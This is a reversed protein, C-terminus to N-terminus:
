LWRKWKEKKLAEGFGFGSGAPPAWVPGKHHFDYLKARLYPPATFAGTEFFCTHNQYFRGAWFAAGAQGLPHDLSHTFVWRKYFSFRPTKTLLDYRDRAPKIVRVRAGPVLLGDRALQNQESLLRRDLKPDEIFDLSQSLFEFQGRWPAWAAGNLDLRWKIGGEKLVQFLAKLRRIQEDFQGPKLKVKVIKFGQELIREPRNFSLLDEILFHSPPIKLGFFLNQGRARAKADLFANHKAILFRQGARGRQVRDLELPLSKEGFVAQPMFDSYGLLGGEFEFAMLAGQSHPKGLGTKLEYASIYLKFRLKSVFNFSKM